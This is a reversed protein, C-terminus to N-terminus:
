SLVLATFQFSVNNEFRSVVKKHCIVFHVTFQRRSIDISLISKHKSKAKCLVSTVTAEVEVLIAAYSAPNCFRLFRFLIQILQIYCIFIVKRKSSALPLSLNVIEVM